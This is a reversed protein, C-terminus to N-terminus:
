VSAVQEWEQPTPPDGCPVIERKGGSPSDKAFLRSLGKAGPAAM